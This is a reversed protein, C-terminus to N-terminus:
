YAQQVEKKFFALCSSMMAEFQPNARPPTKPGEKQKKDLSIDESLPLEAHAVSQSIIFASGREAWQELLQFIGQIMASDDHVSHAAFVPQTIKKDAILKKNQRIVQGLEIAGFYPFKPYKYPDTGTGKIKGDTMKTISQLFSFRSVSKILRVDIAASFLFLGGTISEPSRLIKNFGLAGGTSFGGISVRKGLKSAIEVANDIEERWKTDLSEDQLAEDPNLLGHAPLLPMIINLGKEFFRKAVAEMYYPSDSLGHTLIIVDKTARGHHFIRPGNNPKLVKSHIQCCVNNNAIITTKLKTTGLRNSYHDQFSELAQQIPRSAM